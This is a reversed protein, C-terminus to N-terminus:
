AGVQREANRRHREAWFADDAVAGLDSDLGERIASQTEPSLEPYVEPMAEGTRDLDARIVAEVYANTSPYGASEARRWIPDDLSENLAINM